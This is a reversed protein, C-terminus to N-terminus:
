SRRALRDPVRAAVVLAVLGVAEGIALALGVGARV